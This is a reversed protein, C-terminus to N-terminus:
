RWFQIAGYRELEKRMRELHRTTEGKEGFHHSAWELWNVLLGEIREDGRIKPLIKEAISRDVAEESGMQYIEPLEKNKQLKAIIESLTRYGFHLDYDLLMNHCETLLGWEKGLLQQVAVDQKNWFSELDVDSLTMVFARDLVKDSIAHTTEDVNITGILYFNPPISLEKPIGDLSEESHLYIPTKSEVASLYGSLYYEVRALNMEDLVVFHPKDQEHNACLLMDLFETKMYRKEFSSYYGFLNTADMWDPRVQIIRLYPNVEEAGINYVANAYQKCLQTKGTGSIGNLIVFHKDDLSTLNLHFDRIVEMSYTLSSDHIADMIAELNLDSEYVKVDNDSQELENLIIDTHSNSVQFVGRIKAFILAAKILRLQITDTSETFEMKNNDYTGVYFKKGDMEFGEQRLVEILKTQLSENQESANQMHFAKTLYIQEKKDGQIISRVQFYKFNNKFVNIGFTERAYLQDRTLFDFAGKTILQENQFVSFTQQFFYTKEKHTPGIEVQYTNNFLDINYNGKSNKFLEFFHIAQRHIAAEEQLYNFLDQLDEYMVEMQEIVQETNIHDELLIIKGFGVHPRLRKKDYKILEDIFHNKEILSDDKQLYIDIGENLDQIIKRFSDANGKKIGVQLPYFDTYTNIKLRKKALDLELNLKPLLLEYYPEVFYSEDVLEVFGRVGYHQKKEAYKPNKLDTITTRLTSEYGRVTFKYLEPFRKGAREIFQNLLGRLFPQVEDLIGQNRQIADSEYIEQLLKIDM